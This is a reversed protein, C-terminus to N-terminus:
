AKSCRSPAVNSFLKSDMAAVKFDVQVLDVGAGVVVDVGVGAGVEDCGDVVNPVVVGIFALGAVGGGSRLWCWM